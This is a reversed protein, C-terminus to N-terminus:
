APYAHRHDRHDLHVDLRAARSAHRDGLCDAGTPFFYGFNDNNTDKTGSLYGSWDDETHGIVGM